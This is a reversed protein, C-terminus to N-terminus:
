SAARAAPTTSSSRASPGPTARRPGGGLVEMSGAGVNVMVATFKLLRHGNVIVIRVDTPREARMNPLRDAAASAGAFAGSTAALAAVSAGLL